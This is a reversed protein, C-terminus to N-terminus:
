PRLKDWSTYIGQIFTIIIIIIIIIIILILHLVGIINSSSNM